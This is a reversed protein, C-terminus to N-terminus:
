SISPTGEMLSIKNRGSKIDLNQHKIGVVIRRLNSNNGAILKGYYKFKHFDALNECFICNFYISLEFFNRVKVSNDHVDLVLILTFFQTLIMM